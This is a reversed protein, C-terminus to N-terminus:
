TPSRGSSRTIPCRAPTRVAPTALGKLLSASSASAPGSRISPRMPSRAERRSFGPHGPPPRGRRRPPERVARDEVAIGIAAVREGLAGLADPDGVLRAAGPEVGAAPREGDANAVAARFDDPRGGALHAPRSVDVPGGEGGPRHFLRRRIQDRRERRTIAVRLDVQRRAAGLRHLGRDLQRARVSEGGASRLPAEHHRLRRAVVAGGESRERRRPAVREPPRVQRKEGLRCENRRRPARPAREIEGMGFAVHGAGLSGGVREVRGSIADRGEEHLRNEAGRGAPERGGLIVKPPQAALGVRAPHQEDGIFHQGAASPGPAEERLFVSADLGVDHREALTQSRSIEGPARHHRRRRHRLRDGGVEAVAERERVVRDDGRHDAFHKPDKAVLIQHPPRALEFGIEGCCRRPRRPRRRDGSRPGPPQQGPDTQPGRRLAADPRLIEGGGRPALPKQDVRGSPRGCPRGPGAAGSRRGAFRAVDNKEGRREVDGGASIASIPTRRSAAAIGAEYDAENGPVLTATGSSLDM